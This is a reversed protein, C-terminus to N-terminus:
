SRRAMFADLSDTDVDTEPWRRRLARGVRRCWHTLAPFAGSTEALAAAAEITIVRELRSLDGVPRGDIKHFNGLRVLAHTIAVAAIDAGFRDDDLAERVETGLATRYSDVFGRAAADALTVWRPGPLIFDALDGLCHRYGAFEFDIMVSQTPGVLVNNTASDGNSMALFPGPSLLRRRVDAADTLVDGGPACDLVVAMEQAREWGRGSFRQRDHVRDVRVREALRQYFTDASPRTRLHRDALLQAVEVFKEHTRETYGDRRIMEDLAVHDVLDEMILLGDGAAILRPARVGVEELLELACAETALQSPHARAAADHRDGDRVWKIIVSDVPGDVIRCRAVSWPEVQAIEGLGVETDWTAALLEAVAARPPTSVTAM